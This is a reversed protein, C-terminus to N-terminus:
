RRFAGSVTILILSVGWAGLVPAIQSCQPSRRRTAGSRANTSRWRLYGMGPISTTKMARERQYETSDEILRQGPQKQM